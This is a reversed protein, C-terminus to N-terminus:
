RKIKKLLEEAIPFKNMRAVEEDYQQIMVLEVLVDMEKRDKSTLSNRLAYIESPHECSWMMDLLRCQHETLGEIM